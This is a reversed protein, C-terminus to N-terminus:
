GANSETRVRVGEGGPRDVAGIEWGPPLATTAGQQGLERAPRLCGRGSPRSRTRARYAAEQLAERHLKLRTIDDIVLAKTAHEVVATKVTRVLDELRM